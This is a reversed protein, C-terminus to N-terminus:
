QPPAGEIPYGQAYWDSLGSVMNAVNFGASVLIDRAQQSCNGFGCVVLVERDKPLENLRASLQDLQIHITNPVHSEHWEGQTSVDVVFAGNQYMQYAQDLSVERASSNKSEGGGLAILYVIFAIFLWSRWNCQPNEYFRFFYLVLTPIEIEKEFWTREM